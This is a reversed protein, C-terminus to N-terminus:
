IQRLALTILESLDPTKERSDLVQKIARQSRPLPYGLNILAAIADEAISGGGSLAAAPFKQVRDKLEILLREATKKGIGPIKCLRLANKQSIASQLEALEMHGIIALATKPGVGSIGNLQEFLDREQETVFGFYRHSDERIHAHVFLLVEKGIPPLKTYSNFPIYLRYGLGNVEISVKDPGAASLKGRIYELM